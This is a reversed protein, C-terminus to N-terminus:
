TFLEFKGDPKKYLYVRGEEMGQLIALMEELKKLRRGGLVECLFIFKEKGIKLKRCLTAIQRKIVKEWEERYINIGRQVDLSGSKVWEYFVKTIVFIKILNIDDGKFDDSSTVFTIAHSLMSTPITKDTFINTEKKKREKKEKKM